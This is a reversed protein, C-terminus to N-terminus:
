NSTRICSDNRLLKNEDTVEQYFPECFEELPKNERLYEMAVVFADGESTNELRCLVAAPIAYGNPQLSSFRVKIM